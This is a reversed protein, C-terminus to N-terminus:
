LNHPRADLKAVGKDAWKVVEDYHEDCAVFRMMAGPRRHNIRKLPRPDEGCWCCVNM